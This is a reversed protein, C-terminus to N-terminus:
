LYRNMLRYCVEHYKDEDVEKAEEIVNDGDLVARRVVNEADEGLVTTAAKIRAVIGVSLNLRPKRPLKQNALLYDIVKSRLHKSPGQDTREWKCITGQRLDMREAVDAQSDGRETRVDRLLGEGMAEDFSMAEDQDKMWYITSSSSRVATWGGGIEVSRMIEEM